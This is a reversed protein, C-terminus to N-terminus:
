QSKTSTTGLASPLRFSGLDFGRVLICAALRDLKTRIASMAPM